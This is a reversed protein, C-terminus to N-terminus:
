LDRVRRMVAHTDIGDVSTVDACIQMLLDDQGNGKEEAQRRLQVELRELNPLITRDLRMQLEAGAIDGTELREVERELDTIQKSVEPDDKFQQRLENLERVADRAMQGPNVPRMQDPSRNDSRYFM